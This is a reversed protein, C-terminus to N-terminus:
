LNTYDLPTIVRPDEEYSPLHNTTITFWLWQLTLCSTSTVTYSINSKYADILLYDNMKPGNRIDPLAPYGASILLVSGTRFGSDQCKIDPMKLSRTILKEELRGACNTLNVRMLTATLWNLNYSQVCSVHIGGWGTVEAHLGNSATTLHM